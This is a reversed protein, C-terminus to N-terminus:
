NQLKPLLISFDASGVLQITTSGTSTQPGHQLTGGASSVKPKSSGRLWSSVGTPCSLPDPHFSNPGGTQLQWTRNQNRMKGEQHDYILGLPLLSTNCWAPSSCLLVWPWLGCSMESSRLRWDQRPVTAPEHKWISSQSNPGPSRELGKVVAKHLNPDDM